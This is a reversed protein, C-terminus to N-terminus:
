YEVIARISEGRRMLDFGDNIAAFPLRHSILHDTALKGEVYWQAIRAMDTRPKADGLLSGVVSRGLMFSRIPLHMPEPGGPSGVLVTKGWNPHSAEVALEAVKSDGVCEFSYDAGGATMAQVAALIESGGRRADIFDTLGFRRAVEVKSPNTDVGIIRTAGALRAGDLVNLGVGGLGFVVVTSGQQVDASFLAAGMGTIVACSLVSAVHLPIEAPIPAVLDEDAVAHNSFTAGQCLVRVPGGGLRRLHPSPPSGDPHFKTVDEKVCLNSRRSVCRPCTGCEPVSSTVVHDGPKVSTVGPGCELVVGVGEHGVIIPFGRYGSDILSLDTHCLGAARNEILVQGAGPAGVEIPEVVLPKGAEYAIAARSKM